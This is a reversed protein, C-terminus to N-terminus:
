TKRYPDSIGPTGMCRKIMVNERHKFLIIDGPQPSRYGKLRKHKWWVRAPDADAGELWWTLLNIWPIEYPSRPLVPGYSLKSGWIIDGPMITREMSSSPIIFIGFVLVRCVIIFFFLGPLFFGYALLSNNRFAFALPHKSFTLVYVGTIFLWAGALWWIGSVAHFSVAFMLVTIFIRYIM